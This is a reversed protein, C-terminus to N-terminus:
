NRKWAKEDEVQDLIWTRGVPLEGTCVGEGEVQLKEM